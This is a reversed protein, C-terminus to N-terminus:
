DPFVHVEVARLTGDPQQVATTGVFAGDRVASLDSKGVLSVRANEALKLKLAEGSRTKVELDDGRLAVVDGRVHQQAPPAAPAQPAAPSALLLASWATLTRLCKM